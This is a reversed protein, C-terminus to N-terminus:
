RSDLFNSITIIEDEELSQLTQSADAPFIELVSTEQITMAQTRKQIQLDLTANKEKNFYFFAKMAMSKADASLKMSSVKAVFIYKNSPLCLACEDQPTSCYIVIHDGKEIKDLRFGDSWSGDSDSADAEETATTATSPGAGDCAPSLTAPSLTAPSLRPRKREPTPKKSQLPPKELIFDPAILGRWNGYMIQPFSWMEPILRPPDVEKIHGIISDISADLMKKMDPTMLDEPFNIHFGMPFEAIWSIDRTQKITALLTTPDKTAIFDSVATAAKEFDLRLDPSAGAFATDLWSSDHTAGAAAMPLFELTIGQSYTPESYLDMGMMIPIENVTVIQKNSAYKEKTRSHPIHGM